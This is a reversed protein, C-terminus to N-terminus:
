ADQFALIVAMFGLALLMLHSHCSTVTSIGSSKSSSRSRTISSSNGPSVSSGGHLEAFGIATPSYRFSTYVNKIFSAGVIWQIPSRSSLDMAFFAGTCKSTDKTFTGLNMDANSISYSLGGFQLTVSVATNCPYQYYGEYGTSAGIPESGKIQSYIASAVSAPVGILTTGTDIACQPNGSNISSTKTDTLSALSVRSVIDVSKGQVTMAELPIRWYDRDSDSISIYNVSGNFKDSNLGGFIIEGGNMEIRNASSDGRFRNLYVGMEPSNWNGSSALSQWFPTEDSSAVKKFALGMLGSLPHNILNVSTTTVVGLAQDPVTYGAMSVTDKGVYGEASGSGYSINFAQGTSQFSSSSQTAYTPTQACFLASCSSGAVWLDASGTDLIVAYSADLGIDILPVTGTSRGRWRKKEFVSEEDRRLLQQGREDLHAAYKNRMARAQGLLWSQRVTIDQSYQRAHLATLPVHLSSSASTSLAVALAFPVISLILLM